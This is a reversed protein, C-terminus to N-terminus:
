FAEEESVTSEINKVGGVDRSGELEEWIVTRVIIKEAKQRERVGLVARGKGEAM